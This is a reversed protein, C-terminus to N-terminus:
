GKVFPTCGMQVDLACQTVKLETEVTRRWIVIEICNDENKPITEGKENSVTSNQVLFCDGRVAYLLCRLAIIAPKWRYIVSHM